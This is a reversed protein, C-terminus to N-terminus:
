KLQKLILEHIYCDADRALGDYDGMSRLIRYSEPDQKISFINRNTQYLKAIFDQHKRSLLSM